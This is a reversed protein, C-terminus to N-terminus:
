GRRLRQDDRPAVLHGNLLGLHQSGFRVDRDGLGDGEDRLKSQQKQTPHHRAGLEPRIRTRIVDGRHQRATVAAQAVEADEASHFDIHHLREVGEAPQRVGAVRCARAQAGLLKQHLVFDVGHALLRKM